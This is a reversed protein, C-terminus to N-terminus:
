RCFFLFDDTDLLLLKGYQKEFETLESSKNVKYMYSKMLENLAERYDDSSIRVILTIIGDINNVSFDTVTCQRLLFTQVNSSDIDICRAKYDLKGNFKNTFVHIPTQSSVIKAKRLKAVLTRLVM